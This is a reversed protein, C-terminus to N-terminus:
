CIEFFDISPPKLVSHQSFFMLIVALAANIVLGPASTWRVLTYQIYENTERNSM